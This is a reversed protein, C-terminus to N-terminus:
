RNLVLLKELHHDEKMQLLSEVAGGWFLLLLPKCFKMLCISLKRSSLLWEIGRFNQSEYRMFLFFHIM